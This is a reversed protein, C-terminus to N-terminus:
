IQDRVMLIYCLEYVAILVWLMYMQHAGQCTAKGSLAHTLGAQRAAISVACTM